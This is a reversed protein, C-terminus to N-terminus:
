PADAPRLMAIISFPFSPPVQRLTPHMGALSSRSVAAVNTCTVSADSYPIVAPSGDISQPRDSTRL